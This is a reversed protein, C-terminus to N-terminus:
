TWRRVGVCYYIFVLTYAARPKYLDDLIVPEREAVLLIKLCTIVGYAQTFIGGVCMCWGQGGKSLPQDSFPPSPQLVSTTIVDVYAESMRRVRNACTYVVIEHEQQLDLRSAEPRELICYRGFLVRCFGM